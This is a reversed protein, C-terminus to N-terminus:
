PSLNCLHLLLPVLKRRGVGLISIAEPLLCVVSCLASRLGEGGDSMQPLLGSCEQLLHCPSSLGMRASFSEIEVGSIGADLDVPSDLGKGPGM